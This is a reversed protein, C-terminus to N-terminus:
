GGAREHIDDIVNKDMIVHRDEQFQKFLQHVEECSWMPGALAENANFPSLKPVLGHKAVAKPIGDVPSKDALWLLSFPGVAIFAEHLSIM